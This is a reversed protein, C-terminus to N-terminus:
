TRSSLRIGEAANHFFSDTRLLSPRILGVTSWDAKKVASSLLDQYKQLLEYSKAVGVETASCFFLYILHNGGIILNTRSHRPWFVHLDTTCMKSVLEVFNEGEKMALAYHRCLNSDPDSKSEHTAPALLQRLILFKIAYVSLHFYGSDHLASGKRPPSPTKIMPSPTSPQYQLAASSIKNVSAMSRLLYNQRGAKNERLIAERYSQPSYSDKLVDSLVKTLEIASLFSAAAQPQFEQNAVDVLHAGSLGVINEDSSLDELSLETMSFSSPLIHPTNGHCISTWVDNVFTGWWLRKRLSKEWPPLKWLSPDQHLGLSQAVATAQCALVWIKPSETTGSIDPQEHLILLCAQLTSLKPSDLERNLAAHAHEFLEAQSILPRDKLAPDQTWFPLALGYIIGRLSAPISLKDAAYAMITGAKSLVPIVPHVFRFYLRFLTDAYGQVHAEIADSAAKKARQDRYPFSDHLISFHIPPQGSIPDGGYVQRVNFDVFKTENLVNYRISSFLDTDQEGSLGIFHATLNPGYELSHRNRSSEHSYLSVHRKPLPEPQQQQAPSGHSTVPAPNSTLEQLSLYQRGRSSSASRESEPSSASIASSPPVYGSPIPFRSAQPSVHSDPSGVQAETKSRDSAPKGPNGINESRAAESTELPTNRERHRPRPGTAFTCELGRLECFRCPPKIAIVCASKRSRCIDCPRDRRSRSERSGGHRTELKIKRRSPEDSM